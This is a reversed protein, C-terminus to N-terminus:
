PHGQSPPAAAHARRPRRRTAARIPAGAWDGATLVVARHAGQV